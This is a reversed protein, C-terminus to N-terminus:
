VIEKPISRNEVSKEVSIRNPAAVKLSIIRLEILECTPHLNLICM